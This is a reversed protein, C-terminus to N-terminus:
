ASRRNRLFTEVTSPRWRWSPRGDTVAVNIAPLAGRRRHERVQDPTIALRDAVEDVKLLSVGSV